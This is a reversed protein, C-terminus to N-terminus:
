QEEVPAEISESAEASEVEDASVEDDVVLPTFKEEEPYDRDYQVGAGVNVPRHDGRPIVDSVVHEIAASSTPAGRHDIVAPTVGPAARLDDVKTQKGPRLVAPRHTPKVGSIGDQAPRHQANGAAPAVKRHIVSM